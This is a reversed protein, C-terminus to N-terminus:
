RPRCTRDGVRLERMHGVRRGEYHGTRGNTCALRQAHTPRLLRQGTEDASVGDVVLNGGPAHSAHMVAPEDPRNPERAGDGDLAKVLLEQLVGLEDRHEDVFRAQCRTNPVRVDHLGGVHHDELVLDEEDHVENLTLRQRPEGAGGALPPANGEIHERGHHDANEVAQMRRVLRRVLASFREVDNVAVHRWLVDEDTRVAYRAHDVEADRLRTATRLRRTVPLHLALERVHRGLLQASLGDVSAGVDEGGPDDEPLQEAALSEEGRLALPRHHRHHQLVRHLPGARQNGLKRCFDVRDHEPRERPIRRLAELRGLHHREGELGYQGQRAVGLNRPEHGLKRPVCEGLTCPGDCRDLLRRVVM